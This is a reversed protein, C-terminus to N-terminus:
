ALSPSIWLCRAVEDILVVHDGGVANWFFGGLGRPEAEDIAARIQNSNYYFAQLWPRLLSGPAMRPTAGDLADATVAGPHENPDAFGLWGPSDHSPYIM